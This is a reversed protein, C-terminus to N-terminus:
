VNYRWILGGAHALKNNCCCIVSSLCVGTLRSADIASCYSGVINMEDTYCTVPKSKPNKEGTRGLMPSKRGNFKYSYYNNYSRTCWELNDVRNDTRISNKHNIELFNNPNEIFEQAVLRHILYQTVKGFKSLAISSYGGNHSLKSLNKAVGSYRYNLTRVEGMNSVQYKGEYGKIDKWVEEM